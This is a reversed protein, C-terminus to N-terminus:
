MLADYEFMAVDNVSCEKSIDIEFPKLVALLLVDHCTCRLHFVWRRILPVHGLRRLRVDGRRRIPVEHRCSLLVYCRRGVLVDERSRLYIEFSVGM